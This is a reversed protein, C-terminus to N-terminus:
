KFCTIKSMRKRSWFVKGEREERKREREKGREKEDRGNGKKM